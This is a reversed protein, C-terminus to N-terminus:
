ARQNKRRQRQTWEKLRRSAATTLERELAAMESRAARDLREGAEMKAHLSELRAVRDAPLGEFVFRRRREAAAAEEPTPVRRPEPPLRSLREFYADLAQRQVLTEGGLRIAPLEGSGIWAEITGRPIGFVRALQAPTFYERPGARRRQTLAAAALGLVTSVAEAQGEQGRARLDQIAEQALGLVEAAVAVV